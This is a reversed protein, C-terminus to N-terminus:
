NRTSAASQAMSRNLLKDLAVRPVLLRKGIRLTPIEGLKAAQYAANRGLGLISAAEMVSYTQRGTEHSKRGAVPKPATDTNTMM